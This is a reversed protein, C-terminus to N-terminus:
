KAEAALVVSNTRFRRGDFKLFQVSMLMKGALIAHVIDAEDEVITGVVGVVVVSLAHSSQQQLTLASDSNCFAVLKVSRARKNADHENPDPSQSLV